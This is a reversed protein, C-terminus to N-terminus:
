CPAPLARARARVARARVARARVARARVPVFVVRVCVGCPAPLARVCVGCPCLCWVPAPIQGDSTVM